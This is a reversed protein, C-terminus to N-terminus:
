INPDPKPYPRQSDSAVGIIFCKVLYICIKKGSYRVMNCKVFFTGKKTM